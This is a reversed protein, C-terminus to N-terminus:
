EVRRDFDHEALVENLKGFFPHSPTKIADTAVWLEGQRPKMRGMSM